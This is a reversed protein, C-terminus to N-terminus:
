RAPMALPGRNAAHSHIRHVMRLAATLAAHLAVVRLRGPAKRSQSGLCPMIAPGVPHDCLPTFRLRYRPSLSNTLNLLVFGNMIGARRTVSLALILADRLM